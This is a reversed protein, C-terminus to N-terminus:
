KGGHFGGGFHRRGSGFYLFGGHQRRSSPSEQRISVPQDLAGPLGWGSTSAFYAAGTTGAMFLGIIITLLWRV